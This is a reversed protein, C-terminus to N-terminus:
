QNGESKFNKKVVHISFFLFLVALSLNIISFESVKSWVSSKPTDRAFNKFM